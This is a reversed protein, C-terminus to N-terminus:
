EYYKELVFEFEGDDCKVNHLYIQENNKFKEIGNVGIICYDCIEDNYVIMIAKGVNNKPSMFISSEYKLQSLDQSFTNFVDNPIEKLYEISIAGYYESREVDVIYIEKASDTISSDVYYSSTCSYLVTVFFCIILCTLICKIKKM